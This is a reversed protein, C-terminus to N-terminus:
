LTQKDRYATSAGAKMELPTATAALSIVTIGTCLM